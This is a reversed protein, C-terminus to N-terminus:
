VKIPLFGLDNHEIIKDICLAVFEYVLLYNLNIEKNEFFLDLFEKFKVYNYLIMSILALFSVAIEFIMVHIHM